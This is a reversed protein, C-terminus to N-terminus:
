PTTTGAIASYVRRVEVIGDSRAVLEVRILRQSTDLKPDRVEDVGLAAALHRWKERSRPTVPWDLPWDKTLGKHKGDLVRLQLHNQGNKVFARVVEVTAYDFGPQVLVPKASITIRDSLSSRSALLPGSCGSPSPWHTHRNAEGNGFDAELQGDTASDRAAALGMPSGGRTEQLATADGDGGGGDGDIKGTRQEFMLFAWPQDSATEADELKHLLEDKSWSPACRDNYHEAILDFAVDILLCLGRVLGVALVFLTKSGNRGQIAAEHKKCLGVGRDIREQMSPLEHEPPRADGTIQM